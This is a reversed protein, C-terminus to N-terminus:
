RRFAKDMLKYGLPTQSVILQNRLIRISGKGGGDVWMDSGISLKIIEILTDRIRQRQEAINETETDTGSGTGTTNTTDTFLGGSSSGGNTSVNNGTNSGANTLDIRPGVFNPIVMLLDGVDYIRVRTTRNLAEGTAIHVVGQDIVWYLSSYRDRGVNLQDLVLDLAQAVSVDKVNLTVTTDESIGTAEMARWNVHFNVGSLDRFFEVVTSLPTDKFNIARVGGGTDAPSSRRPTITAGPGRPLFSIRSVQRRLLARMQTTVIVEKGSLYWALPHGKPAVASLTVDLLKSLRLPRTQLTVPTARTVGVAELAVWEANIALGTLTSYERLVQMLPMKALSMGKVQKILIQRPSLKRAPAEKPDAAFAGGAMAAVTVIAILKRAQM